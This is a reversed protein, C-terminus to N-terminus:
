LNLSGLGLPERVWGFNGGSEDIGISKQKYPHYTKLSPKLNLFNNSQLIM